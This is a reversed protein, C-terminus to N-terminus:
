DHGHCRDIRCQPPKRGDNRACCDCVPERATPGRTLFENLLAFILLIVGGIVAFIGLWTHLLFIVGIYVPMWPADFFAFPGPGTM